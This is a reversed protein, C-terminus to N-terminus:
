TILIFNELGGQVIGLGQGGDTIGLSHLPTKPPKSPPQCDTICSQPLGPTLFYLHLMPQAHSFTGALIIPNVIM